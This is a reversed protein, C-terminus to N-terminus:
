ALHLGGAVAMRRIGDITRRSAAEADGDTFHTELSLVGDHGIAALQAFERDWGVVGEGVVTWGDVLDLSRSDKVHVHVIRHKIPEFDERSPQIGLATINGPDWILGLTSDPIRDLYWAAETGTAVNCAFENELGLTRGALRVRETAQTLVELTQERVTEPHEVRWFSFARVIGANMRAAIELSRDLIPWQDDWTAAVDRHADGSATPESEDLATKLFPSAISCVRFGRDHILAALRALDDDAMDVINTDWVNRLEVERIGVQRCVELVHEIDQSIEDTIVGLRAM